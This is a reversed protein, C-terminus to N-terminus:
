SDRKIQRRHFFSEVLPQFKGDYARCLSDVLRRVRQLLPEDLGRKRLELRSMLIIKLLATMGRETVDEPRLSKEFYSVLLHSMKATKKFDSPPFEKFSDLFDAHYDNITESDMMIRWMVYVVSSMPMRYQPGGHQCRHYWDVVCPLKGALWAQDGYGSDVVSLLMDCEVFMLELPIDSVGVEYARRMIYECEEQNLVKNKIAAGWVKATIRMRLSNKMTVLFCSFPIFNSIFSDRNWFLTSVLKAFADLLRFDIDTSQPPIGGLCALEGKTYWIGVEYGIQSMSTRAGDDKTVKLVKHLAGAAKGAIKIDKTDHCVKAIVEFLELQKEPHLRVAILKLVNLGASVLSPFENSLWGLALDRLSEICPIERSPAYGAFMAIHKAVSKKVMCYELDPLSLIHALSNYVHVGFFAVKAEWTKSLQVIISTVLVISSLDDSESVQKLCKDLVPCLEFRVYENVDLLAMGIVIGCIVTAESASGLLELSMKMLICARDDDIIRENQIALALLMFMREVIPKGHLCCDLVKGVIGQLPIPTIKIMRGVANIAAESVNMDASQVHSIALCAWHHIDLVTSFAKDCASLLLCGAEIELANEGNLATNLMEGMLEIDKYCIEPINQLMVRMVLLALSLYGSEKYKVIEKRAIEYLSEHEFIDFGNEYFTMFETPLLKVHDIYEAAIKLSMRLIQHVLKKEFVALDGCPANLCVIKMEAPVNMECAQFVVEVFQLAFVQEDDVSEVLLRMIRWFQDFKQEKLLVSQKAFELIVGCEEEFCSKGFLTILRVLLTMASMITGFRPNSEEFPGNGCLESHVIEKLKQVENAFKSCTEERVCLLLLELLIPRARADELLGQRLPDDSLCSIVEFAVSELRNEVFKPMRDLVFNVIETRADVAMSDRFRTFIGLSTALLRSLGPQSDLSDIGSKILGSIASVDGSEAVKEVFELFAECNGDCNQNLAGLFRALGPDEM